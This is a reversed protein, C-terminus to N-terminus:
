LILPTFGPKKRTELKKWTMPVAPPSTLIVCWITLFDLSALCHVKGKINKLSDEDPPPTILKELTFAAKEKM